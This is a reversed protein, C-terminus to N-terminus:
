RYRSLGYRAASTSAGWLWSDVSTLEWECEVLTEGESLKISKREVWYPGDIGMPTFDITVLESFSRHIIEMLSARTDNTTQLVLHERPMSREAIRARVRDEAKSWTDIHLTTHEIRRRGVNNQSVANESRVMTENVKVGKEARLQAFNVFGNLGSNNVVDIRRFNGEFGTILESTVDFVDYTLPTDTEDFGSESYAYGATALGSNTKVNVKTGDGDPDTAAIWGTAIRSTADVIKITHKGDNIPKGNTAATFDQGTDDLTFAASGSATVTGQESDIPDDLDTGGGGQATSVQLDTVNIPGVPNVIVDGEGVATMVVTQGNLIAPNDDVPMRWVQAAPTVLNIRHYRFHGENEVRNKGDDWQLDRFKIDTEDGANADEYWTALSVLHHGSAPIRHLTEEYRAFGSGDIYFHGVDDDEVQRVETLADRGLAARSGEQTTLNEGNDLIRNATSFNAGDLIEDLIDKATATVAPAIRYVLHKGLREMDDFARIYTHQKDRRPDPQVTDIRGYFMSRWGGFEDWRDSAHTARGGVGHKTVTNFRTTTHTFQLVDDVSVRIDDGHLECLIWKEDGGTWTITAAALSTLSGSVVEGLRISTGDHYVMLYNSADTWRLILGSTTGGRTYKCGVFCNTTLFDLVATLNAASAAKLKNTDVEFSGTDGSWADFKDDYDPKRSSLNTGNTTNFTDVPYGMMFWIVPSLKLMPFFPSSSLSPSYNHDDNLLFLSLVSAEFREKEVRKGSVLDMVRIVKSTVDENADVFDGDENFDIRVLKRPKAM